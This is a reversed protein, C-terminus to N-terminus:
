QMISAPDICVQVNTLLQSNACIDGSPCETEDVHCAARQNGMTQCQAACTFSVYGSGDSALAGCCIEGAACDEPGDCYAEMVTCDALECRCAADAAICTDPELSRVCCKESDPACLSPLGVGCSTGPVAGAQGLTPDSGDTQASRGATPLGADAAAGSAGAIPPAARGASQAPPCGTCAGYARGSEDCSQTGMGTGACPCARQSGPMCMLAGADQGQGDGSDSESCAALLLAVALRACHRAFM